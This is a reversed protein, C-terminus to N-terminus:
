HYPFSCQQLSGRGFKLTLGFKLSLCVIDASWQEDDARPSNWVSLSGVGDAILDEATSGEVTLDRVHTVSKV